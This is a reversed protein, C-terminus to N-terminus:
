DGPLVVRFVAGGGEHNFAHITGQHLDVLRRAVTLGLGTGQTRTTHFPEFLDAPDGPPLGPGHDRVTLALDGDHLAASVEVSAGPPSAQVANRIVNTLVQRMRDPDLMWTSPARSVDIRVRRADVEAAADRLLAALSTPRCEIDAARVFELLDTTLAELRVADTVVREAKSRAASSDSLMEVLLQAHGKLSALPNRIEHALVASMEGLTALRREHELSRELADERVWRRGLAVAGGVLALAAVLGAAMTGRAQEALRNAIVPVYEIVFVPPGLERPRGFPPPADRGPGRPPLPRSVLRMVAGAHEATGPRLRRLEGELEEVAVSPVGADLHIRADPGVLAVYRLGDERHEDLCNELDAPRPPPGDPGGLRLITRLMTDGEGLAVTASARQISLYATITTALLAGVVLAALSPVLWRGLQARPGRTVRPDRTSRASPAANM